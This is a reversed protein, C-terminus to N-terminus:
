LKQGFYGFEILYKQYFVEALSSVTFKEEFSKNCFDCFHRKVNGIYSFVLLAFFDRFVLSFSSLRPRM